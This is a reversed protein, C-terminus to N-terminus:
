SAAETRVTVVVDVKVALSAGIRASRHWGVDATM